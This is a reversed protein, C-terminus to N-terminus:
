IVEGRKEESHYLESINYAVEPTYCAFQSLSTISPSRWELTVNLPGQQQQLQQQKQSGEM